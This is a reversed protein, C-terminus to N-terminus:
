GARAHFRTLLNVQLCRYIRRWQRQREPIFFPAFFRIHEGSPSQDSLMQMKSKLNPM